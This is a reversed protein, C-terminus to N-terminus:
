DRITWALMGCLVFGFANILGHTMAMQPIDILLTRTVISYAYVCALVMAAVSSFSSVSLLLRAAVPSVRPLVWGIVLVALLLLSLSIVVAGIMAALPSFTIGAAVMPMGLIIGFPVFQFVAESKGLQILRRGALGALIPAAYAAFTFHVATLLIITDGFGLIQIGLRSVALWFAAIPLYVLGASVSIEATTRLHPHRLRSLGFLAILLTLCLWPIVLAAAIRGPQLLFSVVVAVAAIPQLLLAGRYFGNELDQPFGEPVLSLGLPVVVLVGLMVVRQILGTEPSDGITVMFLLLWIVSGVLALLRAWRPSPQLTRVVNM